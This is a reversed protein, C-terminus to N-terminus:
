TKAKEAMAEQWQTHTHGGSEIMKKRRALEEAAHAHIDAPAPAPTPVKPAHLEKGAADLVKPAKKTFATGSYDITHAVPVPKKKKAAARMGRKAADLLSAQKLLGAQDAFGTWFNTTIM